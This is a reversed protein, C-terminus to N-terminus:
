RPRVRSAQIGKVDFVSIISCVGGHVIAVVLSKLFLVLLTNTAREKEDLLETKM